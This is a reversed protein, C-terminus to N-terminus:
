PPPQSLSQSLILAVSQILFCRMRVTPLVNRWTIGRRTTGGHVVKARPSSRRTVGETTTSIRCANGCVSAEARASGRVQLWLAGRAAISGCLHIPIM